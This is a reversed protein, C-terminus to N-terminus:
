RAPHIEVRICKWGETVSGRGGNQVREKYIRHPLIQPDNPDILAWASCMKVKPNTKTPTM